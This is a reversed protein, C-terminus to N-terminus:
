SYRQMAVEDLTVSWGPGAPVDMLGHQISLHECILDDVLLPLTALGCALTIDPLSAALQLTAAVSVGSEITTTLVCAISRRVSEEVIQRCARLGGVLQPKLILVDAAEREMILRADHMDRIAEDAALAVPVMTRLRRMGEIDDALLPQEVYQIDYPVCELLIAHAQELSWGENADLRLTIDAGLAERVAAIRAIEQRVHECVGVKLKVCSFGNDKAQRAARVADSTTTAGVVANVAISQTNKQNSPFDIFQNEVFTHEIADLLAMEIGCVTSPPLTERERELVTLADELTLNRLHPILTNLARLAEALTEESMGPFPAIEGLGIVNQTTTLILIAGERTSLTGHATSFRSVFPVRYTQYTIDIITMMVETPAM